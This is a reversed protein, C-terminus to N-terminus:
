RHDQDDDQVYKAEDGKSGMFTTMEKLSALGVDDIDAVQWFESVLM